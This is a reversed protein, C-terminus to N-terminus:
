MNKYTFNSMLLKLTGESGLIILVILDVLKLSAYRIHSFTFNYTLDNGSFRM